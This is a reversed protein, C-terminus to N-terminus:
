RVYSARATPLGAARLVDYYIKERMYSPDTVCSRLKFKRYGYLNHKKKLQISYSLKRFLRSTQGSLELKVHEFQDTQRNDVVRTLNTLITVDEFLHDTLASM